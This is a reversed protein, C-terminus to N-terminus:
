PELDATTLPTVPGSPRWGAPIVWMPNLRPDKINASDPSLLLTYVRYEIEDSLFRVNGDCMTVIFGGSHNSYPRGQYLDNPTSNSGPRNLIIGTPSVGKMGYNSSASPDIFWTVAQFWSPEVNNGTYKPAPPLQSPQSSPLQIWDRCDMNETLLLTMSSGDHKSLYSLDMKPAPAAKLAAPAYADFWIGNEQFDMAKAMPPATFQDWTGANVAYALPAPSNTPNRSPCNLVEIQANPVTAWNNAQFAQYLPNQEIMPLLNPVWGVRPPPNTPGSPQPQVAFLPPFKDKATVYNMVAKGLQGQNNLCTNRRGAERARQVAPVLLGVLMAIIAIVVLLEVLTFARRKM